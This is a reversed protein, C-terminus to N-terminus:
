LDPFDFRPDVDVPVGTVKKLAAALEAPMQDYRAFWREARARDGTAEIELLEKTVVAIAGPMRGYDIAYRGDAKRVIAKQGTLFNFEMMEARGHAEAVGYRVTRFIGAVYSDYYERERDKPLAGRSIMWHLAFMGAVDAKAEELGGYAPGIAARIDEKKGNVTAFAPGLGHCIEHMVVAALYGEESAGAAQAPEMVQGALPLVVFRVRADMFNKFFIKKTGKAAHIRPDNPLNDAVAQYGHRLDGARFPADVVEMPTAQGEKSPKDAAGLPLANQIAPVYKEYLALKRSEPDNRVLVAAGWSAKVGLVDDLYTEEPAYILDIKPNKLDVWAVESAYYDGSLLAAARLNLFAAFAADGSLAAAKRLFVAGPELEKRYAVHYPITELTTGPKGDKWRLVTLPDYIAAKLQPHAAVYAEIQARTLGPPFIARGPLFPDSGTFPKNDDLLDFRSGNIALLRKIRPDQTSRFLDLGRPDSQEWYIRELHQCAEVLARVLQQQRDTLGTSNFPMPVPRWEALRSNLDAAFGAALLFPLLVLRM